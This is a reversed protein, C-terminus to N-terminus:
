KQLKFVTGCGSGPDDRCNAHRNGGESTTGYIYGSKDAILASRPRAGDTRRFAHLVTETGDPALKFVTGCGFGGCGTGGGYFTTGYLAGTKTRLLKSLPWRGDNGGLFNHLVTETGDPALEFVIGDQSTGGEWTTGYLNGSGDLILGALPMAGDNAGSFVHLVTETGDPAIKFVTGCGYGGCGSGGGYVTTGYLNGANDRVLEAEPYAGDSAGGQFNYLVTEIWTGDSQSLEFVTGCGSQGQYCNSGSGGVSTTGYLNGKHMVLGAFPYAGDYGGFSQITTETGNPTLEFVTGSGTGGEGGGKTTGYLNGQKDFVLDGFPLFGDTEGHGFSYLLTETGDPALKYVAGCGSRRCTDGGFLTTGYFNGATDQVLGAHPSYGDGADPGKFYYLVSFSDANAINLPVLSAAALGCVMMAKSFADHIRFM